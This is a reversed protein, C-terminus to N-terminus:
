TCRATFILYFFQRVVTRASIQYRCSNRNRLHLPPPAVQLVCITM